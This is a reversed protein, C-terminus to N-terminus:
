AEFWVCEHTNWCILSTYLYSDFKCGFLMIEATEHGTYCLYGLVCKWKLTSYLSILLRQATPQILCPQLSSSHFICESFMNLCRVLDFTQTSLCMRIEIKLSCTLVGDIFTSAKNWYLVTSILNSLFISPHMFMKTIVNRKISITFSRVVLLLVAHMKDWVAAKISNNIQSCLLMFIGLPILFSVALDCSLLM